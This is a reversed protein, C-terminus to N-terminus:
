SYAPEATTTSTDALKDALVLELYDHYQKYLFMTAENIGVAVVSAQFFGLKFWLQNFTDSTLSSPGMISVVEVYAATIAKQMASAKTADASISPGLSQLVATYIQSASYAM